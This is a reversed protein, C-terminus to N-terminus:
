HLKISSANSPSVPETLKVGNANLAFALVAWYDREAM